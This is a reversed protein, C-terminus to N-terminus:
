KKIWGNKQFQKRIPDRPIARQINGQYNGLDLLDKGISPLDMLAKPSNSLGTSIKDMMQAQPTLIKTEKITKAAQAKAALSQSMNLASASNSQEEQAKMLLKQQDAIGLDKRALVADKASSAAKAGIDSDTTSLAGTPSSAGAGGTASLIPNLGALKLDTVERQHATNSMREQFRMQANASQRNQDAAFLSGALSAAGSLAAAGIEYSM